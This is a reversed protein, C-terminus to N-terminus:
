VEYDPEKNLVLSDIFVGKTKDGKAYIGYMVGTFPSATVETALLENRIKTLIKTVEGEKIGFYYYDKDGSIMLTITESANILYVETQVLDYCQKRIRIEKKENILVTVYNHSGNLILLGNEGSSNALDITTRFEFYYEEKRRLLLTPQGSDNIGTEKANIVLGLDSFKTFTHYDARISCWEYPVEKLEQWRYHIENERKQKINMSEYPNVTESMKPWFDDWNFPKIFVERGMNHRLIGKPRVGLVFLYWEGEKSQVFDAHGINQFPHNAFNRHTLIPNKEYPIFPGWVSDSYFMTVMHGERTGGEAMLLYYRGDKKFIHPAEPDRGGSGFCLEKPQSAEFTNLDFEIQKVVSREDNWSAYHIYGINDEIYISPDIGDIDFLIPQSWTAFPDETFTLFNQTFKKKNTNFMTSLVYYRKGDYRITPAFIGQSDPLDEISLPSLNKSTLAFNIIKWNVLDESRFIPILPYYEFSSVVLYYADDHGRCVSPDPFFGRIIPNKVKYNKIM